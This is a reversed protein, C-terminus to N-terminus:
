DPVHSPRRSRADRSVIRYDGHTEWRLLLDPIWTVVEGVTFQRMATEGKGLSRHAACRLTLISESLLLSFCRDNQSQWAAAGASRPACLAPRSVVGGSRGRIFRCRC